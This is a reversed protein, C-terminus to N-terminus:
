SACGAGGCSGWLHRIGGFRALRRSASSRGKSGDGSGSDGRQLLARGGESAFAFSTPFSSCSCSSSPPPPPGLTPAPACLVGHVNSLFPNTSGGFTAGQTRWFARVIGLFLHIPIRRFLPIEPRHRSSCCSSPNPSHSIRLFIRPFFSFWYYYGLFSFSVEGFPICQLYFLKRTTTSYGLGRASTWRTRRM